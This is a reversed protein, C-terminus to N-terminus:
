GMISLGNKCFTRTVDALLGHRDATCLERKIGESAKREIAALLCQTVHQKEAESSTPNGDM